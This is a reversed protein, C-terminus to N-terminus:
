VLNFPSYKAEPVIGCKCLHLQQFEVNFVNKSQSTFPTTTTKTLTTAERFLGIRLSKRLRNLSSRRFNRIICSASFRNISQSFQKFFVSFIDTCM